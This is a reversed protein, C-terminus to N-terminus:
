LYLVSTRFLTSYLRFDPTYETDGIRCEEIVQKAVENWETTREVDWRVLKKGRTDNMNTRNTTNKLHIANEAAFEFLRELKLWMWFKLFNTIPQFTM